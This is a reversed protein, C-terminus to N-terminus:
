HKNKEKLQAELKELRKNQEILYLTLEEIKKTQLKVMEGLNVGNKIVEAESPMDPLHQNQDIYTKVENLPTLKYKPKFVFDPWSGHLMVTVSEAIASGAVALKYGRPDTTGIAIAGTNTIRVREVGGTGLTINRDMDPITSYGSLDIFSKVFSNTGGGASLRLLGDDYALGAGSYGAIEGVIRTSGVVPRSMTNVNSGPLLIAGNVDLKGNPITTGIGVNGNDLITMVPSSFSSGGITTSPTFNLGSPGINAVGIQWNKFSAAWGFLNLVAGSNGLGGSIGDIALSANSRNIHLNYGPSITGIGVNGSIPWPNSNNQAYSFQTITFVAVLTTYLKKM